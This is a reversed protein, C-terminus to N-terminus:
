YAVVKYRDISPIISALEQDPYKKELDHIRKYDESKVWTMFHEKTDWEMHVTIEGPKKDNQLLLFRQFGEAEDVLGSRSHYISIVEEAKEDPVVFTSHVIYM